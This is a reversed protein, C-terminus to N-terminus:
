PRRAQWYRSKWYSNSLSSRTVGQSTSAHIFYDDKDYIGVHLGTGTGGIKFFLLDGTRLDSKAVKEGIKAQDSTSRPLRINFKESFTRQVFASCDIGKRDVGGYRYPTGRWSKLQNNLHQSTQNTQPLSGEPTSSCGAVLLSVTLMCILLRM